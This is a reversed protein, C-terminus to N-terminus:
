FPPKPTRINFPSHRDLRLHEDVIIYLAELTTYITRPPVPTVDEERRVPQKVGLNPAARGTQGVFRENPLRRRELERKERVGDSM